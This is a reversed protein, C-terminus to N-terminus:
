AGRVARVRRAYAFRGVSRWMLRAMAPMGGLVAAREQGSAEELVAGVFHLLKDRPTVRVFHEGQADYEAATLYREVLPLVLTEEEDLHEVLAARHGLLVGALEDRIEAPAGGAVWRAFLRGAEEITGAVRGHQEEVRLVVDAQLDVRALLLPWLLEDEGVHHNHLGLRYDAFAGALLRARETDGPRVAAVCTALIRSERRFARHIVVMSHTDPRETVMTNM